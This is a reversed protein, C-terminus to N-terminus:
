LMKTAKSTVSTREDTNSALLQRAVEVALVPPGRIQLLKLRGYIIIRKTFLVVDISSEYQLRTSKRLRVTGDVVEWGVVQRVLALKSIMEVEDEVVLFLGETEVHSDTHNQVVYCILLVPIQNGM